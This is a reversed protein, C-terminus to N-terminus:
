PCLLKMMHECQFRTHQIRKMMHECQIRAKASIKSMHRIGRATQAQHSNRIKVNPTEHESLGRHSSPYKHNSSLKHKMNLSLKFM